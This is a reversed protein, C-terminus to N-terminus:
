SFLARRQKNPAPVRGGIQKRIEDELGTERENGLRNIGSLFCKQHWDSGRTEKWPHYRYLTSQSKGHVQIRTRKDYILCLKNIIQSFVADCTKVWSFMGFNSTRWVPL